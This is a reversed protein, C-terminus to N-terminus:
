EWVGAINASCQSCTNNNLSVDRAEFYSRKVLLNSCKPCYTDNRDPVNGLYIYRLGAEKGISFAKKMRELPTASHDTFQYDPHFRSIHWPINKDLSAIFQAIAELESDSDNEGPVLLTTIEVWVGLEKMYTIADLVPQLRGQCVKKYYDDRFSKLDVNAADLYPGICDLAEKTMFGNTVFNNYLGKDKALKATDYAYEIFITPETYTYSISKCRSRLAKEVLLEPLLEKVSLMENKKKSVQSIQWNQCFGCKFNCGITAVSFSTSGPLFHYLPKKEIPDVHEAIAEGYVLSYLTGNQNQRVGCIGFKGETITCRHACLNCRVSNDTLKEYLMAEIKLLVESQETIAFPM